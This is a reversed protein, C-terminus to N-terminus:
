ARNPFAVPSFTATTLSASAAPTASIFNPAPTPWCPVTSISVSPVPIPLASNMSPMRTGFVSNPWM